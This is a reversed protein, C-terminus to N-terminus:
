LRPAQRAIMLLRCLLPKNAHVSPDADWSSNNAPSPPMGDLPREADYESANQQIESIEVHPDVQQQVNYAQPWMSPEIRIRAWGMSCTKLAVLQTVVSMYMLSTNIHKRPGLDNTGYMDFPMKHQCPPVYIHNLRDWVFSARLMLLLLNNVANQVWM